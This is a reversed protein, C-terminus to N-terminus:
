VRHFYRIPLMGIGIRVRDATHLDRRHESLLRVLDELRQNRLALRLIIIHEHNRHRLLQIQLFRGLRDAFFRDFHDLRLVQQRQGAIHMTAAARDAHFLKERRRDM